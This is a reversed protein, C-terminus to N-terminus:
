ARRRRFMVLSGLGLVLMTAPEPTFTWVEGTTVDGVTNYADIRWSYTTGSVLNPLAYTTGTQQSSVKTMGSGSDLWVDFFSSNTAAWSLVGGVPPVTTDGNAPLRSSIAAAPAFVEVSVDDWWISTDPAGTTGNTSAYGLFVASPTAMNPNSATGSFNDLTYSIVKTSLNYNVVVKHWGAVFPNNATSFNVTNWATTWYLLRYNSVNECGIRSLAGNTSPVFNVHQSLTAGSRQTGTSANNQYFWATMKVENAGAPVTFGRGIRTAQFDIHKFGTIGSGGAHLSPAAATTAAAWGQSTPTTAGQNATWNGLGSEFDETWLVAASASGVTMATLAILACFSVLLSQKIM